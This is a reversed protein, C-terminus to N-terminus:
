RKKSKRYKCYVEFPILIFIFVGTLGYLIQEILIM